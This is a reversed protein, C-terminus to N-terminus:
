GSHTIIRMTKETIVTSNSPIDKNIFSMAGIVVNDGIEIQDAIICSSAGISVNNGINISIPLNATNNGTIGITTNQRVKFSHGITAASNIILGQYHTIKMGPQIAAGLQIEAGYKQILKRNIRRAINKVVSNRRQFLYSAIRWWFLYRREPCKMAKHVVRLWSFPKDNMMVEKQLSAKLLALPPNKENTM